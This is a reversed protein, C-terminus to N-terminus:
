SGIYFITLTVTGTVDAYLGTQFESPLWFTDGPYVALTDLLVTSAASTNDWLKISGGTSATVIFGGLRGSGTAILTDASISKARYHTESVDRM